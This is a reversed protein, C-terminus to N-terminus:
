INHFHLSEALRPDRVPVLNNKRVQGIVLGTVISVVGLLTAADVWTIWHLWEGVSHSFSHEGAAAHSEGHAMNPLILYQMDVWHM